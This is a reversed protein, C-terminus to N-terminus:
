KQRMIRSEISIDLSSPSSVKTEARITMELSNPDVSTADTGSRAHLFEDDPKVLAPLGGDLLADAAVDLGTLTAFATEPPEQETWVGGTVEYAGGSLIPGTDLDIRGMLLFDGGTSQARVNDAARPSVTFDDGGLAAVAAAGTVVLMTVGFATRLPKSERM